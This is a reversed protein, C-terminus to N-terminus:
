KRAAQIKPQFEVPPFLLRPDIFSRTLPLRMLEAQRQLEAPTYEIEVRGFVGFDDPIAVVPDQNACNAVRLEIPPLQTDGDSRLDVREVVKPTMCVSEAVLRYSRNRRVSFEFKGGNANPHTEATPDDRGIEYLTIRSDKIGGGSQDVVTGVLRVKTEEGQGWAFVSLLPVLFVIGPIAANM